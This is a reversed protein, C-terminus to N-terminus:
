MVIKVDSYGNMSYTFFEDTAGHCTSSTYKYSSKHQINENTQRWYAAYTCFSDNPLKPEIFVFGSKQLESYTNM